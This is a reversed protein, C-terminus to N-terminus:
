RVNEGEIQRSPYIVCRAKNGKNGTAYAVSHVLCALSLITQFFLAVLQGSVHNTDLHRISRFSGSKKILNYNCVSYVAARGLSRTFADQRLDLETLVVDQIGQPQRGQRCVAISVGIHLHVDRGRGRCPM